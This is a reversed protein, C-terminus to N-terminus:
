SKWIKTILDGVSFLMIPKTTLVMHSDQCPVSDVPQKIALLLSSTSKALLLVPKKKFDVGIINTLPITQDGNQGRNAFSRIGKRTIVVKADDATIIVHEPIHIEVKITM